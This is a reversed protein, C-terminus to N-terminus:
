HAMAHYAPMDTVQVVIVFDPGPSIRYCQLVAADDAVLAEFAQMDETSQRDLTVEVIATLSSGLAGADLIAVQKQIVGRQTLQRVRRLCTPASVHVRRALAQNTLSSDIQLQELIRLDLDDFVFPSSRPM